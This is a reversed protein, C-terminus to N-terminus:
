NTARSNNWLGALVSTGAEVMRIVNGYYAQLLDRQSLALAGAWQPDELLKQDQESFFNRVVIECALILDMPPHALRPVSVGEHLWCVEDDLPNGGVQIHYRPGSQGLNALDFHCRVMVRGRDTDLQDFIAQTDLNERYAVHLDLAWVRLVLEQKCPQGEEDWRINCFVDPQLRYGRILQEAFQLPSSPSITYGWPTGPQGRRRQERYYRHSSDVMARAQALTTPGLPGLLRGFRNEVVSLGRIVEDPTV